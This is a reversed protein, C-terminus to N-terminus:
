RKLFTSVADKDKLVQVENRRFIVDCDDDCMKGVSILSSNTLGPLVHAQQAQPSLKNSLPLQALHNATITSANPLTVTSGDPDYLLNSAATSDVPRLYHSSAGSDLIASIVKSNTPNVTSTSYNTSM